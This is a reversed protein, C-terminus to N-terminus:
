VFLHLLKKGKSVKKVKARDKKQKRGKEKTLPPSQSIMEPTKPTSPTGPPSDDDFYNRAELKEPVKPADILEITIDSPIKHLRNVSDSASEDIVLDPSSERSEPKIEEKIKMMKDNAKENKVNSIKKFINVKKKDPETLLKDVNDPISKAPIPTITTNLKETKLRAAQLAKNIKNNHSKNSQPSTQVTPPKVDNNALMNNWTQPLPSHSPQQKAQKLKAVDKMPPPKKTKVPNPEDPKFLEKGIKEKNKRDVKKVLKSPKRSNNVLPTDPLANVPNSPIVPDVAALPTRSEPLKGERAPSLYGSTTMMVSSIERTPRGEEEFAFRARKTFGLGESPSVDIPRKFVPPAEVAMDESEEQNTKIDSANEDGETGFSMPPLHEHIHVPRTLVEKSGPKLFNLHDEKPIPYKPVPTPNQGFDVYKIYEELDGLDVNM